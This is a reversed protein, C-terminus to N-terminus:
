YKFNLIEIVGFEDTTKPNLSETLIMKNIPVEDSIIVEINGLKKKDSSLKSIIQKFVPPSCILKEKIKPPNLQLWNIVAGITKVDLGAKYDWTASNGACNNKACDIILKGIM